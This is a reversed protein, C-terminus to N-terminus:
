ITKPLVRVASAIDLRDSWGQLAPILRCLLRRWAPCPPILNGTFLLNMRAIGASGQKRLAVELAKDAPSGHIAQMANALTYHWDMEHADKHHQLRYAEAKRLMYDVAEETRPKKIM